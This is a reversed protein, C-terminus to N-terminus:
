NCRKEATVIDYTDLMTDLQIEAVPKADMPNTKGTSKIAACMWIIIKFM